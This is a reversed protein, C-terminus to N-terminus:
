ITRPLSIVFEAGMEPPQLNKATIEGGMNRIIDRSIALGLGVNGDEGKHFRKFIHPLDCSDIGNGDDKIAIELKGEKVYCNIEIYEKAYRIANSLINIIARELKEEDAEITATEATIMFQKESKAAIPKMREVCDFLLHKVNITSIIESTEIGSDMRSVYLLGSVLDTMKQSESLIIQAAEDKTFIDGLIGEAYGQISMLPTRLEHSANQFFKKQNNEYTQLMNSMNDMSKSLQAFETDKFTGAKEDFNGYGITEAHKCLRNIARKFRTSMLISILLSLIGSLILLIALRHNMSNMFTVASSIDTFLLVSMSNGHMNHSTARLYYANNPGTARIMEEGAFRNRNSLYYNALFEIEVRQYDALLPLLPMIIEDDENIIIMDTTIISSSIAHVTPRVLQITVYGTIPQNIEEMRFINVREMPHIAPSWPSSMLSPSTPIMRIGEVAISNYLRPISRFEGIAGVEGVAMRNYFIQNPTYEDLFLLPMQYIDSVYRIGTDLEREAEARIYSSVLANFLFYVIVFSIFIIGTCNLVLKKTFSNM